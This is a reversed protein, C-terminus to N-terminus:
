AFVKLHNEFMSILVQHLYVDRREFLKGQRYLSVFLLWMAKSILKEGVYYFQGLECLQENGLRIDKVKGPM